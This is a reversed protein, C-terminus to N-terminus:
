SKLFTAYLSILKIEWYSSIYFTNSDMDAYIDIIPEIDLDKIKEKKEIDIIYGHRGSVVCAIGINPLDAILFNQDWKERFEGCWITGDTKTFKVFNWSEQKWEDPLDFIIEEYEGSLPLGQLKEIRTM